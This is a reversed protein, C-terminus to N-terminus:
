KPNITQYQGTPCNVVIVQAGEKSNQPVWPSGPDPSRVLTNAGLFAFPQNKKKSELYQKGADTYKMLYAVKTTKGGDCSYKFAQVLTPKGTAGLLPPVSTIPLVSEAGTDEDIYFAKVQNVDAAAPKQRNFVFYCIIALLAAAAVVYLGRQNLWERM